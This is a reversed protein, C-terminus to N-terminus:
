LIEINSKALKKALEEILEIANPNDGHVCFTNAKIAIKEGSLTTVKKESIMQFIHKFLDEFNTICAGEKQRSVLSLDPNYNRDAFAEFVCNINESFALDAIVSKYPVYLKLNPFHKVAEIVSLAVVKTTAAMNYLAGHPKIHHLTVGAEIAIDNLTKVQEIITAVLENRSLQMPKRGFNEKDPFSPHAGAKVAHQKALQLVNRMMDISGAHGGCAINCSSIHPMLDAENGIGEGVDCNIDVQIKTM